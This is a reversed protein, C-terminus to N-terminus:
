TRKLKTIKPALIKYLFGALLINIFNVVITFKMLMKQAAKACMESGLLVFLYQNKASKPDAHTFTPHLCVHQRFRGKFSSFM